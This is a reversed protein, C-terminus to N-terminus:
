LTRGLDEKMGNILPTYNIDRISIFVQFYLNSYTLYSWICALIDVEQKNNKINFWKLLQKLTAIDKFHVNNQYIDIISTPASQWGPLQRIILVHSEM